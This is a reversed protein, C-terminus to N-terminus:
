AEPPAGAAVGADIGEPMAVGLNLSFRGKAEALTTRATPASCDASGETRDVLPGSVSALFTM